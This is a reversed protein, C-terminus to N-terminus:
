RLELRTFSIAVYPPSTLSMIGPGASV